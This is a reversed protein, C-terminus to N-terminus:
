RGSTKPIRQCYNKRGKNDTLVQEDVQLKPFGKVTIKEEEATVLRITKVKGSIIQSQASNQFSLAIAFFILKFILINNKVPGYNSCKKLM